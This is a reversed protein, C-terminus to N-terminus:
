TVDRAIHIRFNSPTRGTKCTVMYKEGAAFFFLFEVDHRVKGGSKAAECVGQSQLNVWETM